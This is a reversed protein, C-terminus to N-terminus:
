LKQKQKQKIKEKKQKKTEIKKGRRMGKGFVFHEKPLSVTLDVDNL